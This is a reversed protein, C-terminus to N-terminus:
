VWEEFFHPSIPLCDVHWKWYAFGSQIDDLAQRPASSVTIPSGPPLAEGRLGLIEAAYFVGSMQITPKKGHVSVILKTKQIEEWRKMEMM